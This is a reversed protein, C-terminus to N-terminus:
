RESRESVQSAAAEQQAEATQSHRHTAPTPVSPMSANLASMKLKDEQSMSPRDDGRKKKKKKGSEDRGLPLGDEKNVLEAPLSDMLQPIDRNLMEDLQDVLKQNLKPFKSFNMEGLKSKFSEIDPFDGIALSHKKM